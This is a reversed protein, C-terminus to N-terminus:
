GAVGGKTPIVSFDKLNILDVKFFRRQELTLRPGRVFRPMSRDTLNVGSTRAGDVIQTLFVKLWRGKSRVVTNMNGSILGTQEGCAM